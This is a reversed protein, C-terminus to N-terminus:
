LREHGKILTDYFDIYEKCRWINLEILKGSQTTADGNINNYKNKYEIDIHNEKDSIEGLLGKDKIRLKINKIVWLARELDMNDLLNHANNIRDLLFENVM